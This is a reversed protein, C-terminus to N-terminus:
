KSQNSEGKPKADGADGGVVFDELADELGPGRLARAVIVGNGDILFNAPISNVGYIRAPESQWGGLDSV